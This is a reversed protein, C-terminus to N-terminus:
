SNLIEGEKLRNGNLFDRVSLIKGNPAQLQKLSIYGDGTKVVLGLKSNAFVIEGSQFLKRTVVGQYEEAQFVKLKIDNYFCYAIPSPNYARIKNILERTSVSFDLVANEKTLMQCFTANEHEQPTFTATKNEILDLARVLTKSGVFAMKEFLEKSTDTNKIEVKEQLIIEGSDVQPKMVMITVGSETMGNLIASQIPSPGRLQPLLSGHLNIPLAIDLVEQSLIQGFAVLVLVDPKLAKIQSVGEKSISNFQFVPLSNKMAVRKVPSIQIKKGRGAAKDPQTVVALVEHNTKLIEELCTAAIQPTGLFVIKM